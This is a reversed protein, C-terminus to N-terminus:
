CVRELEQEKTSFRLFPSLGPDRRSYGFFLSGSQLVNVLEPNAPKDESGPSHEGPLVLIPLYQGGGCMSM